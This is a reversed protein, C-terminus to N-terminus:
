CCDRSLLFCHCQLKPHDSNCEVLDPWDERFSACNSWTSSKDTTSASLSASRAFSFVTWPFIRRCFVRKTALTNPVVECAGFCGKGISIDKEKDISAWQMAVNALFCHLRQHAVVLAIYNCALDNLEVQWRHVRMVRVHINNTSGDQLMHIKNGVMSALGEWLNKTFVITSAVIPM